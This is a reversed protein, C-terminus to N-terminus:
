DDYENLIRELGILDDANALWVVKLFTAQSIRYSHKRAVKDMPGGVLIATKWYYFRYNAYKQPISQTPCAAADFGTAESVTTMIARIPVTVAM